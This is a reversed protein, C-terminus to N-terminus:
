VSRDVSEAALPTILNTRSLPLPTSTDSAATATAATTLKILRWTRAKDLTKHDVNTLLAM